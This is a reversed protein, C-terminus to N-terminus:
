EEVDEQPENIKVIAYHIRRFDTESITIELNKYEFKDGENPIRDLQEMIWGSINLSDFEDEDYELNFYEFFSKIDNNCNVKVHDKDIVVFDEVVEDHEDWIEGVLEELIDEMTVIGLTGGYEDSVIAIHEKAKQLQKLLDCIKTTKPVFIPESMIERINDKAGSASFYDKQHLVGIINDITKDYILIRSFQNEAFVKVIEEKTDNIDVGVLDIRPTLVDEATVDNFELASKLLKGEDADIGGEQTVEDVLVMLDDQTISNNENSKFFLNILKKWLSFIFNLPLLIWTLFKLIPASFKAFGESHDKALSKPTIEGFILVTVTMVITSITPGMDGLYQVFLVTAISASAINVINNGILITSLLKDYDEALSLVLKARKDGNNASNKLKIKNISSFATETGSFYASWAVLIILVIILGNNGM